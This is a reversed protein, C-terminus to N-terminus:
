TAAYKTVKKQSRRLAERMARMQFRADDLADHEKESEDREVSLKERIDDETVSFIGLSGCIIDELELTRYNIGDFGPLLKKLFMYDNAVCWGAIIGPSGFQEGIEVLYGLLANRVSGSSEGSGCAEGLLKRQHELVWNSARDPRTVRCLIKFEFSTSGFFEEEGSDFAQQDIEHAIMGIQMVEGLEIDSNTFEMDLHILATM